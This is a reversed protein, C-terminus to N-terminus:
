NAQQTATLVVSFTHDVSEVPYKLLEVTVTVTLTGTLKAVEGTGCDVTYNFYENDTADTTVEVKANYESTNQIVFTYTVANGAGTQTLTKEKADNITAKHGNETVEYNESTQFTVDFAKAEAHVEGGATLTVNAVAAYGVGIVLLAAIVFAIILNKRNKM